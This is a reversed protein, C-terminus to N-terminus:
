YGSENTHCETCKMDRWMGDIDEPHAFELGALNMELEEISEYPGQAVILHCTHCDYALHEGSDTVMSENHCRFCGDDTFHSLHNERARYDTKMEPFYNERYITLLSETAQRIQTSMSSAIGPYNEEYYSRLGSRIAEQAEERIEYSGNLLNLGM